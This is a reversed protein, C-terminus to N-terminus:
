KATAGGGNGGNAAANGGNGATGNGGNANGGGTATSNKSLIPVSVVNGSLLTAGGNGGTGAGGDGAVALGGAGGTGGTGDAAFAVGAGGALLLASMAGIGVIKSTRVATESRKRHQMFILGRMNFVNRKVVGAAHSIQPALAVAPSDDLHESSERRM